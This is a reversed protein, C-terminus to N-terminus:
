DEEEEEPHPINKRAAPDLAGRPIGLRNAQGPNKKIIDKNERNPTVPAVSGQQMIMEIVQFDSRSPNYLTGIMVQQDEKRTLEDFVFLAAPTKRTVYDDIEQESELKKWGEPTHILWDHPSILTRDHNIEFVSQTRTRAGVFKFTNQIIPANQALWPESSKLLNLLIKGKGETDWLELTMLREDIKKVVLLPYKLSEQSPKINQWRNDKWILCENLGVFVSYINENEGLEVRQKGIMDAFEEGGHQELFRDPGFWKAKQRALLTGDVRFGGLEWSTGAYRIFEKEAVKFQSFAEPETVIDGQENQMALKIHAENDQLTAEIWLSTKENNPSFTYKPPNQKKDYLLYLPKGPPTSVVIKSGNFSFHLLTTDSQIDPRGNKGYYVLQQRLDPLQVSPPATQLTLIPEGITEYADATLSFAGKPLQSTRVTPDCCIIESPRQIWFIGAGALLLVVLGIIGINLWSLWRNFDLM